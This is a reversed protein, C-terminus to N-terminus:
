CFSLTLVFRLWHALFLGFRLFIWCQWYILDHIASIRSRKVLVRRLLSLIMAVLRGLPGLNICLKLFFFFGDQLLFTCPSGLLLSTIKYATNWCVIIFYKSPVWPRAVIISSAHFKPLSLCLCLIFIMLEKWLKSQVWTFTNLIPKWM